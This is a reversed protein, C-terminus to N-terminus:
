GRTVPGAGGHIQRLADRLADLDNQTTTSGISVRVTGGVSLTGLTRHAQPACHLGARVTMGFAESLCQEMALPELAASTFSAVPLEGAYVDRAGSQQLLAKLQQSADSWSWSAGARISAAMAVIAPMNLTGAELREPLENPAVPATAQNGTGGVILPELNVDSRVALVGVGPLARLGKHAGFIILDAEGLSLTADLGVTQASDVIVLAGRRHAIATLEAVPQVVGNVNSGHTVVVLETQDVWDRQVAHLDIRGQGDCPLTWVHNACRLTPRRTANHALPCLAIIGAPQGRVRVGAIAQNLAATASPLFCVEATGVITQVADRAESLAVVAKAQTRHHGRLPNGLHFAEVAADTAIRRRPISTAAHDLYSM